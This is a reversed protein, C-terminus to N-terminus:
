PPLSGAIALNVDVRGTRWLDVYVSMDLHAKGVSVSVQPANAVLPEPTPAPSSPPPLPNALEPPPSKPPPSAPAAPAAPPPPPAPPQSASAQSEPPSPQPPVPAAPRNPPPAASMPVPKHQAALAFAITALIAAAVTGGILTNRGANSAGASVGGGAVTAGATTALYGTAAIGLVTPVVGTRLTDNLASLEAALGRCRDCDELHTDLQQKANHTLSNRAWAGLNEVVWRCAEDQSLNNLHAQLYEQKLKERARYALASLANPTLGLLPAVTAPAEREIELHWLVMQYRESLRNFAKTILEQDEAAVAPDLFPQIEITPVTEVDAVPQVRRQQGTRDAAAHRIATLLYALAETPGRGQRLLALVREFAEAVLDDVEAASQSVQRALNNAAAVHRQYLLAYADAAGGGGARVTELLDHDSPEPPAKEEAGAM